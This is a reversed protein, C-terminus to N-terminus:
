TGTLTQSPAKRTSHPMVAELNRSIQSDPKCSSCLRWDCKSARLACESFSNRMDQEAFMQTLRPLSLVCVGCTLTLEKSIMSTSVSLLNAENRWIVKSEFNTRRARTTAVLYQREPCQENLLIRHASPLVTWRVDRHTQVEPSVIAIHFIRQTKEM